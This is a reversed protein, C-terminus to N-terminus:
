KLDNGLDCTYLWEVMDGDSLRYEDCSVSPIEGNVRYMWGSLDGYDFEYLYNIGSVYIMGASGGSDMQIKKERVAEVLVDYVTTDSEIKLTVNDLIIGDSPIYEFDTKGILTDCRIGVTVTGVANEKKLTTGYYSEATQFNTFIIFLVAAVCVIGVVIFNKFSRKKLIYFVLCVAGGAMIVCICAFLKYRCVKKENKDVTDSKETDNVDENKTAEDICSTDNEESSDYDSSVASIQSVSSSTVKNNSSVSVDSSSMINESQTNMSVSSSVDTLSVTPAPDVKSPNRRDLMYFGQKGESFRIYSVMSYLAQVTALDSYGGDEKHCFGGSSLSFKKIGDFVTNGNKIFRGDAAADIGLSSLALLVQATSEANAVGYGSFEGTALQRESLFVLGSDVATKVTSDVTYYPALAQLTMATADVDSLNSIVAWGGDNQQMSLLQNKVAEATYATSKYGNNLIHLGFIWSMIGQKGITENLTSSIYSETGGVSILALAYKQRSVKNNIENKELYKCLASHYSSFDYEGSQALSLIYWESNGAEDTLAGNIWEQVSKDNRKFDVIGGIINKADDAAVSEASVSIAGLSTCLILLIILFSCFKTKM